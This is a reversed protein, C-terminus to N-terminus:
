MTLLSPAGLSVGTVAEGWRFRSDFHPRFVAGPPYGLLLAYDPTLLEPWLGCDRAANVLAFVPAPFAAPGQLYGSGFRAGAAARADARPDFVSADEFLAREGEETLAGVAMHLGPCGGADRVIAFGSGAPPVAVTVETRPM